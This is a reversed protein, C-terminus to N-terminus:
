FVFDWKAECCDITHNWGMYNGSDNFNVDDTEEYYYERELPKNDRYNDSGLFLKERIEGYM